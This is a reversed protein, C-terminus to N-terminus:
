ARDKRRSRIGLHNLARARKVAKGITYADLHFNRYMRASNMQRKAHRFYDETTLDYDEYYTGDPRHRHIYFTFDM